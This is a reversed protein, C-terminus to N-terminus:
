VTEMKFFFFRKTYNQDKEKMLLNVIIGFSIYCTGAIVPISCTLCINVRIRYPQILDLVLCVGRPILPPTQRITIKKRSSFMHQPYKNSAGRCAAEILVWLM